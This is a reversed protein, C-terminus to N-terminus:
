QFGPKHTSMQSYEALAIWQIGVHCPKSPKWIVKRRQAKSSLLRLMPFTLGNTALLLKVIKIFDQLSFGLQSFIQYLFTKWFMMLLGGYFM